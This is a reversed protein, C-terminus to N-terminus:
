VPAIPDALVVRLVCCAFVCRQFAKSTNLQLYTQVHDNFLCGTRSLLGKEAEGQRKKPDEDEDFIFDLSKTQNTYTYSPPTSTLGFSHPQSSRDISRDVHRPCHGDLGM